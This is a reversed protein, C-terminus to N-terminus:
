QQDRFSKWQDEMWSYEIAPVKENYNPEICAQCDICYVEHEVFNIAPIVDESYNGTNKKLNDFYCDCCLSDFHWRHDNGYYKTDKLIFHFTVGVSTILDVFYEELKETNLDPSTLDKHAM